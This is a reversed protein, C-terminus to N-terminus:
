ATNRTTAKRRQLLANIMVAVVLLNLGLLAAGHWTPSRYLEVLEFPVYIMGSAAAFYEAWAREHFLGYAEVFRVTSYVAAGLALMLLRSDQLRSAADLFIQPYRSAPNLYSHEILRTAIAYLDKHVSLLGTAAVLVAAGKLAEFVAVARIARSRPM